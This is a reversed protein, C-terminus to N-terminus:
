AGKQAELQRPQDVAREAVLDEVTEAVDLGLRRDDAAPLGLPQRPHEAGLDAGVVRAPALVQVVRLPSGTAIRLLEQVHLLEGTGQDAVAQRGAAIEGAGLCPEGARDVCAIAVGAEGSAVAWWAFVVGAAGAADASRLITPGLHGTSAAAPPSTTTM